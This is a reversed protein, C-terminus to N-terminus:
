ANVALREALQSPPPESQARYVSFGELRTRDAEHLAFTREEAQRDVQVRELREFEAERRAQIRHVTFQDFREREAVRQERARAVQRGDDFQAFRDREALQSEELQKRRAEEAELRDAYSKQTRAREAEVRGVADRNRQEVASVAEVAM